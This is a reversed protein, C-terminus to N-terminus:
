LLRGLHELQERGLLPLPRNRHLFRPPQLLAMSFPRLTDLGHPGELSWLAALQAYLDLSLNSEYAGSLVPQIGVVQAQEVLTQTRSLGTLMPKLVVARLGPIDLRPEPRERLTEDWAFPIPIHEHWGSYSLGPRLPEEIYEVRQPDLDACFAAAQELSWARNADLRLRATAPVADLIWRMRQREEAPDRQGVKLKVCTSDSLAAPDIPGDATVLLCLTPRPAAPLPVTLQLLGCELGFRVSPSLDQPISQGLAELVLTATAAQSTADEPDHTPGAAEPGQRVPIQQRRQGVHADPASDARVGTSRRIVSRKEARRTEPNPPANFTAAANHVHHGAFFRRCETVCTDLSECSFGPLPAIESWVVRDPSTRWELLLGSRHDFVLGGLHLPHRLPLRYHWLDVGTVAGLLAESM